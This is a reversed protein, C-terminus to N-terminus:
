ISNYKWDISNKTSADGNITAIDNEIEQLANEVTEITQGSKDKRFVHISSAGIPVTQEFTGNLNKVKLTQIVDM